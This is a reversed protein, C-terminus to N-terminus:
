GAMPTSLRYVIRRQGNAEADKNMPAAVLKVAVRPERGNASRFLLVVDLQKARRVAYDRVLAQAETAIAKGMPASSRLYGLESPLCMSTGM